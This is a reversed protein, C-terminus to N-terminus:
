RCSCRNPPANSSTSCPPGARRVLGHRRPVDARRRGRTTPPPSNSPIERTACTRSTSAKSWGAPTSMSAPFSACRSLDDTIRRRASRDCSRSSARTCAPREPWQRCALRRGLNGDLDTVIGRGGPGARCRRRLGLRPCRLQNRWRPDRGRNPWTWGTAGHMRPRSCERSLERHGRDSRGPFHRALRRRLHQDRRGFGALARRDLTPQAMGNTHLPKGRRRHLPQPSRFWTTGRRARRRAGARASPPRPPGGRLQDGDIPDLVWM